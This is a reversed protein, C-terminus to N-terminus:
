FDNYKVNVSWAMLVGEENKERSLLEQTCFGGVVGDM